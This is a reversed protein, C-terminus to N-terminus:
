LLYYTCGNAPEGTRKTGCVCETLGSLLYQNVTNNRRNFTRNKDIQAQARDFLDKDIIAPIAVKWWHKKDKMKRSSKLIRKYKVIKRPNKPEICERKNYYHEGYYSTNHLLNLLATSWWYRGGKPAPIGRKGLEARVGYVSMGRNGVLDFILRVVEAEKENITFHAEQNYVKIVPHYDYGYVPRYGLLKKNLQVKKRKGDKFRTIITLREYEHAAGFVTQAIKHARVDVSHHFVRPISQKVNHVEVIQPTYGSRNM